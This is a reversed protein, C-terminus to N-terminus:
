FNLYVPSSLLEEVSPGPLSLVLHHLQSILLGPGVQGLVAQKTSFDQQVRHGWPSCGALSRQGRSEGPLFVTAM